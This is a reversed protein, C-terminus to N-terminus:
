VFGTHTNPMCCVSMTNTNTQSVNYRCSICQTGYICAILILVSVLWVVLVCVQHIFHLGKACASPGRIDVVLGVLLGIWVVWVTQMGWCLGVFM